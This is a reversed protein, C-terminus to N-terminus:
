DIRNIKDTLVFEPGQAMGTKAVEAVTATETAREPTVKEKAMVTKIEMGM